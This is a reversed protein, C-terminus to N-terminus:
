SVEDKAVFLLCNEKQSLLFLVMQLETQLVHEWGGEELLKYVIDSTMFSCDNLTSQENYKRISQPRKLTIHDSLFQSNMRILGLTKGIYIKGCGTM